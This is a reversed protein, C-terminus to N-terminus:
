HSFPGPAAGDAPGTGRGLNGKKAEERFDYMNPYVKRPPGAAGAGTDNMARVAIFVLLLIGLILATPLVWTPLGKPVRTTSM